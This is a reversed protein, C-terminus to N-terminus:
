VKPTYEKCAVDEADVVPWCRTPIGNTFYVTAPPNCHCEVVPIEVKGSYMKGKQTFNCSGCKRDTM